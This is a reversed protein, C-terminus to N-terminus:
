GYYQFSFPLEIDAHSHDTLSLNTGVENIEIWNYDPAREDDSYSNIAAYKIYNVVEQQYSYDADVFSEGSDSSYTIAIAKQFSM